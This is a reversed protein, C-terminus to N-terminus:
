IEIIIMRFQHITHRSSRYTSILFAAILELTDPHLERTTKHVFLPMPTGWSRQRSICWDPRNEVM